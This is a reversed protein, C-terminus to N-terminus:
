RANALEREFYDLALEMIRIKRRESMYPYMDIMVSLAKKGQYIWEWATKKGKRVRRYIKCNTPMLKNFKDVTDKDTSCLSMRITSGNNTFCGEGELMGIVWGKNNKSLRKFNIM